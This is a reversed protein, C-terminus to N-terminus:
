CSAVVLALGVYKGNRLASSIAGAPAIHSVLLQGLLDVLYFNSAWWPVDVANQEVSLPRM